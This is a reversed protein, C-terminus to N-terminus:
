FGGSPLAESSRAAVLYDEGRTIHYRSMGGMLPSPATDAAVLEGWKVSFGPLGKLAHSLEIVKSQIGLCYM